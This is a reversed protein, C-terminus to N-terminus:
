VSNDNTLIGYSAPSNWFRVGRNFISCIEDAYQAPFNGNAIICNATQIYTWYPRHRAWNTDFNLIDNIPYGYASWYNDIRKLNEPHLSMVFYDADIRGMAYNLGESMVQGHVEPPTNLMDISKGIYSLGATVAGGAAGVAAAPPGGIAMGGAAGAFVSSLLSTVSSGGRQAQWAQYADGVWPLMVFSNQTFGDEYADEFGRYNCPYVIRQPSPIIVGVEKFKIQNTAPMPSEYEFLEPKYTKITGENSNVLISLYPSTFLKKNKPTYDGIKEFNITVYRERTTPTLNQETGLAAPYHYMAAIADEYGADTFATIDNSLESVDGENALNYTKFGLPCMLGYRMGPNIPMSTGPPIKSYVLAVSINDAATRNGRVVVTEDGLDVDDEVLNEFLNDTPPTFRLVYQPPMSTLYNAAFTQMVDVTFYVRTTNISLEECKDVWVFWYSRAITTNTNLRIAAYNCGAAQYYPLEIDFYGESIVPPSQLTFSYKSVGTFYSWQKNIINNSTGDDEWSLVDSYNRNFLVSCLLISATKGWTSPGIISM